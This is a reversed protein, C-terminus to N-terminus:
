EPYHNVREIGQELVEREAKLDRNIADYAKFGDPFRKRLKAINVDQVEEFTFGHFKALIAQYWFVDGLEEKINVKDADAGIIVVNFLAELLEGAETAIGLIGHITTEGLTDNDFYWPMSKCTHADVQSLVYDQSPKGYFLAKKIADLKKLAVIAQLLTDEMVGYGVKDGHWQNSLTQVAQEIYEKSM